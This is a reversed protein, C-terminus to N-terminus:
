RFLGWSVTTVTGGTNLVTISDCSTIATQAGGAPITYGTTDTGTPGYVVVRVKSFSSYVYGSTAQQYGNDLNGGADHVSRAWHLHSGGNSFFPYLTVSAAAVLTYDGATMQKFGRGGTVMLALLLLAVGIRARVQLPGM